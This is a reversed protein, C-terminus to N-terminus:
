SPQAAGHAGPEGAPRAGAPPRPGALDAARDIAAVVAEPASFQPMHGAGAVRVLESRPVLAHLRESVAPPVMQDQDGTVIVLPVRLSAYRSRLAALGAEAAAHDAGDSLLASPQLALAPAVKAYAAPVPTPAFARELAGRVLPRGLRSRGLAGTARLLTRSRSLTVVWPPPGGLPLAYAGLTVVAAVDGPADLAWALAVAAGLSHGVLLPRELGLAAAAARLTAAQTEPGNDDGATRGSYGSGPRDIAVTDYRRALLPGASLTFDYGSGKAGHIFVLAPGAGARVYHLRVGGAVVFAGPPTLVAPGRRPTGRM